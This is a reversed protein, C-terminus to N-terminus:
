PADGVLRAAEGAWPLGMLLNQPKMRIAKAGNMGLILPIPAGAKAPDLRADPTLRMDFLAAVRAQDITRGRWLADGLTAGEADLGIFWRWDGTKFHPTPSIRAKVGTMHRLWAEMARALGERAKPEAGLPFAMSHADSRSFYTWALDSTMVDLDAASAAGLMTALPGGGAQGAFEADALVLAGEILAGSQRRFFLEGARLTYPDDIGELANRLALQALQDVFVPPVDVTGAILRAYAAEINPAALLRARLTLFFEWNERADADEIAAVDQATVPTRPAGRLKAHLAREAACAEPPPALEPRALWALLLEDTVILRGAEDRRCLQHGSAVWFEKMAQDVFQNM